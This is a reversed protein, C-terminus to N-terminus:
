SGTFCTSRDVFCLKNGFPDKFYFSREGWPRSAIAHAPDGHIDEVDFDAHANQCRDHADELDDVAVYIFETIPKADYGDGDAIPDFCALITGDCDFYHRGHSVRIGKFNLITAYFTAAREIDRVPVLIRFLKPKM